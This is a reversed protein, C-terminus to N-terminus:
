TASTISMLWAAPTSRTPNIVGFTKAPWYSNVNGAEDRSPLNRAAVSYFEYDQNRLSGDAALQLLNSSRLFLRLRFSFSVFM